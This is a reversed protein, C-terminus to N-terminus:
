EVYWNPTCQLANNMRNRFTSQTRNFKQQMMQATVDIDGTRLFLQQVEARSTANDMLPRLNEPLRMDPRELLSYELLSGYFMHKSYSLGIPFMCGALRPYFLIYLM